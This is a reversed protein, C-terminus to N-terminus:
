PSSPPALSEVVPLWARDILAPVPTEAEPMATATDSATPTATSIVRPTPTSSSGPPPPLAPTGPTGPTSSPGPSASPPPTGSGVTPSAGPTPSSGPVPTFTAVRIATLYGASAFCTVIPPSSGCPNTTRESGSFAGEFSDGGPHVRLSGYFFRYVSDAQSELGELSLWGGGAGDGIVGGVPGRDVRVGGGSDMRITWTTTRVTTEGCRPCSRFWSRTVSWVGSIDPAPAITAGPTSMPTPPLPQAAAIGFPEGGHMLGGAVSLLALVLACQIVTIARNGRCISLLREKMAALAGDSCGRGAM